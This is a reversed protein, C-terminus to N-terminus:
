NFDIFSVLIKRLPMINTHSQYKQTALIASSNEEVDNNVFDIWPKAKTSTMLIFCSSPSVYETYNPIM